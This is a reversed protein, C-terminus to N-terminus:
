VISALAAAVVVNRLELAPHTTRTSYLGIACFLAIPIILWAMESLSMLPMAPFPLLRGSLFSAVFLAGLDAGMLSVGRLSPLSSRLDRKHATPTPKVPLITATSM